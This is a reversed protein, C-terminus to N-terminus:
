KNGKPKKIKPQKKGMLSNEAEDYENDVVHHLVQTLLVVDFM